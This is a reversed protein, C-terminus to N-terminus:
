FAKPACRAAFLCASAKPLQRMQRFILCVLPLHESHHMRFPTVLALFSFLLAHTAELGISDGTRFQRVWESQRRPRPHGALRSHWVQIWPPRRLASHIKQKFAKDM